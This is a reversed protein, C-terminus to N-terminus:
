KSKDILVLAVLSFITYVVQMPFNRKTKLGNIRKSEKIWTLPIIANVNYKGRKALRIQYIKVKKGGM